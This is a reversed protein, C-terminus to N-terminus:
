RRDSSHAYGAGFPEVIALAPQHAAVLGPTRRSVGSRSLQSASLQSGFNARSPQSANAQQHTGCPQIVAALQHREDTVRLHDALKVTVVSDLTILMM